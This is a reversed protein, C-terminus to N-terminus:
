DSAMPVRDSGPGAILNSRNTWLCDKAAGTNGEIRTHDGVMRKGLCDIARNAAMASSQPGKDTQADLTCGVVRGAGEPPGEALAATVDGDGRGSVAAAVAGTRGASARSCVAAPAM